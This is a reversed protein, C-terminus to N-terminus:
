EKIVKIPKKSMIAHINKNNIHDALVTEIKTVRETVIDLKEDHKAQSKKLDDIGSKIYGLDSQMQGLEHAEKKIDKDKNRRAVVIAVLVSIIPALSAMSVFIIEINSM